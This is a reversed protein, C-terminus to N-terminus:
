IRLIPWLEVPVPVKRVKAVKSWGGSGYGPDLVPQLEVQIDTM